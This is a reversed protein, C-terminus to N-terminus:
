FYLSGSLLVGVLRRFRTVSFLPIALIGIPRYAAFCLMQSTPADTGAAKTVERSKRLLRLVLALFYLYSLNSFFLVNQDNLQKNVLLRLLSQLALTWRHGVSVPYAEADRHGQIPVRMSPRISPPNSPVGTSNPPLMCQWWLWAGGWSAPRSTVCQKLTANQEKGAISLCGTQNLQDSQCCCCPWASGLTKIDSSM